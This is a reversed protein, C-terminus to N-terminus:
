INAIEGKAIIPGTPAAHPIGAQPELTIALTSGVVLADRIAAPVDVTHAKENSVFGLSLPAGGAPIIWLEAVRGGADAPSPVPVMHIKGRATDLSALWGAVGSDRALVVVPRAVEAEVPPTQVAVPPAAPEPKRLVVVPRAVEAEEPPTQVAVPPASPAAPEPKRIGIAIALVSAAVALGTAARWFGVSDWLTKRGDGVAAWGLRTRIRPWVHARPEFAEVQELWPAMRQEWAAVRRAFAPDALVRADLRQREGADLVGLVYEGALVDDDSPLDSPADRIDHISM